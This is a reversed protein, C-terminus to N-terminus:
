VFIVKSFDNKKEIPILHDMYDKIGDLHTIIMTFDFQTKLYDFASGMNEINDSDLTGFGEDIVLFNPRPLTSVNILGIRIALSSVFREMGSSLELNWKDDGYCIYTNINKGEMELSLTFGVMMNDLVENVEREIIPITKSILDYPIGDKSIAMLYLDYDQIKQEIDILKQIDDEIRQKDSKHVSLNSSTQKHQEILKQKEKIIINVDATVTAIEVNIKENEKIKEENDYYEKIDDEINKIDGNLVKIKQELTSVKGDIKFADQSIQNLEDQFMDFDTKNKEANEVKSFNHKIITLMGNELKHNQKLADLTESIKNKHNIHEEGNNMCYECDEDYKYKELEILIEENSKIQNELTEIKIEKAHLQQKLDLFDDYDSQIQEEDLKSLKQYYENYLPRLTEKYERDEGLQNKVTKLTNSKDLLDYKLQEIDLTTGIKHLHGTLEIKEDQLDLIDDELKDVKKSLKSEEEVLDVIKTDITALETYSNKKQFNKLLVREENSDSKAIEYLQDFIDIDMFQSLIQKRESQKKDIFNMGNTQLSLSTLIFDDFTGLIKRIEENTGSGYQTNKRASGTLDIIDDGDEMYFKVSVPCTYTTEGTKRNKRSKLTGEREIWYSENNIELNLKVKFKKKKKNLVEMAKFTRSCTDYITYAISDLLASKGSANPAILGVIGNLKEFDIKNGCGYSFMNDFELSKIKWDVNRTIGGDYIEPSNNIEENIDCVRKITEADIGDVNYAFYETILENQYNVDRVDGIDIRNIGKSDIKSLADQKEAKVEKLKPYKKRLDIQIDKIQELNTNWYKVKISGKPPIFNLKNQINGDVVEIVKFGYDNEVQHYTSTKADLDWVLFGHSPEEVFSQAILSGPYAVTEKSDLFQKLHIDGLMTIDYGSFTDLTVIDSSDRFGTDYQFNGVPGHYLAIKYENTLQKPDPLKDITQKGGDDTDFISLVGFDINDITYKGSKKWYHLNPTIKQVLEVIPSLADERTKNTINVDHNGTIVITQSIKCLNLFLKAVMRVEEPSTNIKGHVVDGAVVILDPKIEKLQKYLRGFVERYEKHRQIQRIHIDAIHAVTKIM